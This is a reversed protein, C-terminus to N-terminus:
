FSKRLTVSYNRLQVDGYPSTYFPANFADFPPVTNFVNNVNLTVTMGDFFINGLRGLLSHPDLMHKRFSYGLYLNHYTQSPIRNGGQVSTFLTNLNYPSGTELASAYAGPDGPAGVQNYGDFFVTTWAVVWNDWAWHLTGTAKTKAVGGSNPFGVFELFNTGAVIQQRNHEQITEAATLEFTGFNTRFPYDLSLTWASQKKEAVNIYETTVTTIKGTSDRVVFNPYASEIDVM